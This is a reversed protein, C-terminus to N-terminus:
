GTAKHSPEPHGRKRCFLLHSSFGGNSQVDRGLRECSTPRMTSGKVAAATKEQTRERLMGGARRFGPTSPPLQFVRIGPFHTVVSCSKNVEKSFKERFPTM